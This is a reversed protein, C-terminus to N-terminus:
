KVIAQGLQLTFRDDGYLVTINGDGIDEVMFSSGAVQEGSGVTYEVGDFTVIAYKAGGQEVIDVLALTTLLAGAGAGDETGTTLGIPTETEEVLPRFPDKYEFLDYDTIVTEDEAATETTQESPSQQPIPKPVAANPAQVALNGPKPLAFTIVVLVVLLLVVLLLGVAIGKGKSTSLTNKMEIESFKDKLGM